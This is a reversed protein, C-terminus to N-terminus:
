KVIDDSSLLHASRELLPTTCFPPRPELRVPPSLTSSCVCVCVEPLTPSRHPLIKGNAIETDEILNRSSQQTQVMAEFVRRPHTRPLCEGISYVLWSVIFPYSNTLQITLWNM